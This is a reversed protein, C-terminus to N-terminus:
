EKYSTKKRPRLRTKWGDANETQQQDAKQKNQKSKTVVGDLAKGDLHPIEDAEKGGFDEEVEFKHSSLTDAYVNTYNKGAKVPAIDQLHRSIIRGSEDDQLLLSTMGNIRIIKALKWRPLLHKLYKLRPSFQFIRCWVYDGVKLGMTHVTHRKNAKQSIYLNYHNVLVNNLERMKKIHSSWFDSYPLSENKVVLLPHFFSNEAGFLLAFPPQSLYPLIQTSNILLQLFKLNTAWDTTSRGFSIAKIANSLKRVGREETANGWPAYSSTVRHRSSGLLMLEDFLQNLFSKSRDSVVEVASGYNCIINTFFLQATEKASTTKSLCFVCLRLNLEVCCLVYHDKDNIKVAGKHDIGWLSRATSVNLRDMKLRRKPKMAQCQPCNAVTEYALKLASPTYFNISFISYLFVYGRHLHKCHLHVMKRVSDNHEIVLCFNHRENKKPMRIIFLLDNKLFLQEKMNYLDNFFPSTRKQLNVDEESAENTLMKKLLDIDKSRNQIESFYSLKRTCIDSLKHNEITSKIQDWNEFLPEREIGDNKEKLMTEIVNLEQLYTSLMIRNDFIENDMIGGIASTIPLLLNENEILFHTDERLQKMSLPHLTNVKTEGILFHILDSDNSTQFFNDFIEDKPEEFLHICNLDKYKQSTPAKFSIERNIPELWREFHSNDKLNKTGIIKDLPNTGKNELIEMLDGEDGFTHTSSFRKKLDNVNYELSNMEMVKKVNEESRKVYEQISTDPKYTKSDIDNLDSISIDQDLLYEYPAQSSSMHRSVFDAVNTKTSVYAVNFPYQSISILLRTIIPNSFCDIDGFRKKLISCCVLNDSWITLMRAGCLYRNSLLFLALSGLECVFPAKDKFTDSLLRSWFYAIEITKGNYEKIMICGGASSTTASWDVFCIIESLLTGDTLKLYGSLSAKELRKKLEEFCWTCLATWVYPHDKRILDILPKLLAKNNQILIAFFSAQCQSVNAPQKFSRMVELKKEPCMIVMLEKIREMKVGLFEFSNQTLIYTKGLELLLNHQRLRAFSKALIQLHLYVIKDEFCKPERYFSEKKLSYDDLNKTPTSTWCDDVYSRALNPFTKGVKKGKQTTPPNEGNEIKNAWKLHEEVSCNLPIGSSIDHITKFIYASLATAGCYGMMLKLAHLYQMAEHYSYTCFLDRICRGLKDKRASLNIQHFSQTLDYLSKLTDERLCSLAEGLEPTYGMQHSQCYSTLFSADMVIRFNRRCFEDSMEEAEKATAPFKCGKKQVVTYPHVFIPFRAQSLLGHKIMNKQTKKYIPELAVSVRKKHAANFPITEPIHADLEFYLLGEKLDTLDTVFVDRYEYLLSRVVNHYKPNINKIWTKSKEDMKEATWYKKRREQAIKSM